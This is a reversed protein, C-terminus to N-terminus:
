AIGRQPELASIRARVALAHPDRLDDLISLAERYSKRAQDVYNLTVLVDARAIWTEAATYRQWPRGRLSLAKDLHTLAAHAQGQKYLLVGLKHHALGIIPNSALREACALSNRATALAAVADGRAQYIDPLMSRNVALGIGIGLQDFLRDALEYADIAEAYQERGAYARGLGHATWARSLDDGLEAHMRLAEVLLEVGEDHDGIEQKVWGLAQLCRAKGPLSGLERARALGDNAADLWTAWTRTLVFYPLFATPLAWRINEACHTHAHRAIAVAAGVEAECWAMAEDFGAFPMPECGACDDPIRAWNPVLINNASWATSAYWRLARDCAREVDRLHEEVVCHYAAYARSLPNIRFRGAQATDLLHINRLVDLAVRARATDIEALAATYEVTVVSAPGVGLLRFVRAVWPPLGLYSADIVSHINVAPDSSTFVDLRTQESSLRRALVDLSVDRHRQLYEAAILVPMPLGDCQRVIAEAAARGATVRAPGIRRGLLDLADDESLPPLEITLAATRLSLGPQHERSTAVLASGAVPLLMAVQECNVINDLVVLTPREALLSRYRAVREEHSSVGVEAVSVGLGRLFGDLVDRPEAPASVGGMDAYLCGGPFRNQVRRAWQVALETKGVWFGGEIVIAVPGGSPGAIALAEDMDHLYTDRGIFDPVSAPLQRPRSRVVGDGRQDVALRDLEGNAQLALDLQHVVSPRLSRHGHLMKSLYSLSYGTAVALDTLTIGLQRQRRHVAAAFSNIPRMQARGLWLNLQLGVLAGAM